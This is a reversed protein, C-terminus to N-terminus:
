CANGRVTYTICKGEKLANRAMLLSSSKKETTIYLTKIDCISPHLSM